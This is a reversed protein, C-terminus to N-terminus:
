AYIPLSAFGVAIAAGFGRSGWTIAQAYRGNWLGLSRFASQVGHGVHAGLIAVGVIYWILNVPNHFTKIVLWYLSAQEEGDITVVLRDSLTFHLLHIIVFALIFVGSIIMTSSALNKKGRDATIAYRSPRANQNEITLKVALAIHTAFIALLGARAPWILFPQSALTDAYGDFAAQGGFLFFNGALHTVLFGCLALGTVAMLQKKGISSQFARTIWNM